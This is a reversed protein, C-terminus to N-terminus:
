AGTSGFGNEGRITKSIEFIEKIPFQVCPQIIMQAIREQPYIIQDEDSDNYIPIGIEGRYDSDIVSVCTSPRLGNKTALGSRAYIAGFFGNPIEMALGSPIMASCGPRIALPMLISAHLDMGASGETQYQPIIATDRVKMINISNKVLEM